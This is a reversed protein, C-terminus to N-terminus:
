KQESETARLQAVVEDVDTGSVFFTFKENDATINETPIAWLAAAFRRGSKKDKLTLLRTVVGSKRLSHWETKQLAVTLAFERGAESMALVPVTNLAVPTGSNSVTTKKSMKLGEL